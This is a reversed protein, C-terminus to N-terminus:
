VVQSPRARQGARHEEEDILWREKAVLSWCLWGARHEEREILWCGRAVLQLGVGSCAARCAPRSPKRSQHIGNIKVGKSEAGHIRGDGLSRNLSVGKSQKFRTGYM